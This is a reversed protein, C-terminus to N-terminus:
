NMKETAHGLLLMSQSNMEEKYNNMKETGQVMLLVNQSNMEEADHKLVKPSNM